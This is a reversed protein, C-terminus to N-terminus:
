DNLESLKGVINEFKMSRSAKVLVSDGSNIYEKLAKLLQETNDITICNIEDKFGEKYADKFEGVAILLNIGKERAYIGIDRHANYSEEGLEKMTGLIAVKRQSNLNAQVDLAAKMSDPSANYCDNIIILDKRKIIDLRMSTFEINKVGNKIDEISLGLSKACAIALLSNLINHKGPLPLCMTGISENKNIVEFSSGNDELVINKAKFELDKGEVGTKVVNFVSSNVSSLLENDGNVILINNENFFDTIEMKAKLINEKTKLNEIHSIGINTIIAIDPRAVEALKHIENFNSMGMELVAIDYSDDMEFIMLPLGIENNFNGKTKFVKYKSSLFAAVIDKTSTKGTSGTIGIIKAPLLERKASAIDLLAKKTDKVKLITVGQKLLDKDFNIEDIICIKAGKEVAEIVYDNGNFNDGRLAIFISGKQLKRTDTCISTYEFDKGDVYVEGKTCKLIHNFTLLSM